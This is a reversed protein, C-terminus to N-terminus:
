SADAREANGQEILIEANDVPVTVEDGAEFPGYVDMDVGMFEPVEGTITVTVQEDDEGESQAGHSELESSEAGDDTDNSGFLLEDEEGDHEGEEAGTEEEDEVTDIEQEPEPDPIEASTEEDSSTNDDESPDVDTEANKQHATNEQLETKSEESSFLQTEMQNRHESVINQLQEFLKEEEPLLNKVTLSTTLSLFALRLIKKQRSDLIDEVLHKASRYERNNQHGGMRQKRELYDHVRDLFNDDLEQLTDEQNEKSQVQRLQQYTLLDDETM